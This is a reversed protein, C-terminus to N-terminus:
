VKFQKTIGELHQALQALESSVSALERSSSATEETRRHIEDVNSSITTAVAQQDGTSRAIQDNMKTIRSITETIVTLSSGAKNATEVSNTAQETGRAM